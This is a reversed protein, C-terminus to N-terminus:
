VYIKSTIYNCIDEINEFIFRDFKVNFSNKIGILFEFNNLFSDDILNINKETKFVFKMVKDQHEYLKKYDM